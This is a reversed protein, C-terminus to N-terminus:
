HSEFAMNQTQLNENLIDNKHLIVDQCRSKKWIIFKEYIKWIKDFFTKLLHSKDVTEVSKDM